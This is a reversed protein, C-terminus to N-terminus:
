LSTLWLIYSKQSLFVCFCSTDLFYFSHHSISFISVSQLRVVVVVVVKPFNKFSRLVFQFNFYCFTYLKFIENVAKCSNRRILSVRRLSFYLLKKYSCPRWLFISSERCKLEVYSYGAFIRLNM